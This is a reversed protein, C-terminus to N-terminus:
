SRPLKKGCQECFVYGDETRAGCYPCYGGPAEADPTGAAENKEREGFRANLPDPEEGEDTVDYESFRNKRTANSFAYVAQVIAVIIFVVGFLTFLPGAGMETALVTWIVGFIGVAISMVGDMMSPGRGRKVSKM